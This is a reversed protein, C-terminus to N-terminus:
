RRKEPWTMVQSSSSASYAIAGTARRLPNACSTSRAQTAYGAIQPGRQPWVDFDLARRRVNRHRAWILEGRPHARHDGLM